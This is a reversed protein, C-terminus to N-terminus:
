EGHVFLEWLSYGWETARTVGRMRVYRASVPEFDLYEIGGQGDRKEIASTWTNADTSIEIVYHRGYAMEWMLTVGSVTYVGGLDLTLSETDTWESGWRTFFDGDIANSAGLDSDEIKTSTAGAVPITTSAGNTASSDANKSPATVLVFPNRTSTLVSGDKLLAKASLRQVGRLTLEWNATWPKKDASAIKTGNAFYEIIEIKQSAEVECGIVIVSNAGATVPLKDRSITIRGQRAPHNYCFDMIMESALQPWSHKGNEYFLTACDFGNKGKRIEGRVGQSEFFVEAPDQTENIRRYVAVSDEASLMNWEELGNFPVDEDKQGHIHLVSVPQLGGAGPTEIMCGAVPVIAAFKGPLAAALDYAKIAGASHGTLYIRAPDITYNTSFERIMEDFFATDDPAEWRRSLGNPYVVIFDLEDAIKDLQATQQFIEGTGSAGHLAFLLSHQRSKDYLLPIHVAGGRRRGNVDIEFRTSNHTLALGEIKPKRVCSSVSLAISVIITVAFIKKVCM